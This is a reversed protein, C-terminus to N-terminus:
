VARFLIIIIHYLNTDVNYYYYYVRMVRLSPFQRSPFQKYYKTQDQHIEAPGSKDRDVRFTYTTNFYSIQM